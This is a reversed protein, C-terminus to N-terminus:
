KKETLRKILSHVLEFDNEDLKKLNNIVEQLQQPNKASDDFFQAPTLEFYDCLQFFESMSLMNKGSTINNIFSRSHGLNYSLKYESLGKEIRLQTIRNRLFDEM